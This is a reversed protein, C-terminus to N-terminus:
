IQRTAAAGGVMVHGPLMTVLAATSPHEWDTAKVTTADPLGIGVIRHRTPLSAIEDGCENAAPVVVTVHTAELAFPVDGQEKVTVTVSDSGGTIV